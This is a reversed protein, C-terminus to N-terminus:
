VISVRAGVQITLIRNLNITIPGAAIANNGSVITVNATLTNAHVRFIDGLGSGQGVDGNNGQFYSSTRRPADTLVMWATTNSWYEYTVGNLTYQQQNTPTTPFNLAAM